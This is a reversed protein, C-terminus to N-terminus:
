MSANDKFVAEGASRYTSKLDRGSFIDTNQTTQVLYVTKKEAKQPIKHSQFPPVRFIHVNQRIRNANMKVMM